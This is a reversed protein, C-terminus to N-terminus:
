PVENSQASHLHEETIFAQLSEKTMTEYVRALGSAEAISSGVPVVDREVADPAVDREVADKSFSEKRRCAKIRLALAVYALCVAIAVSLMDYYWCVCISTVFLLMMETTLSAMPCPSVAVFATLAVVVTTLSTETSSRM